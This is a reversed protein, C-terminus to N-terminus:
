GQADRCEIICNLGNEHYHLEIDANLERALLKQILFTGFGEREPAQVRPGGKEQWHLRSLGNGSAEVTIVVQGEGDKLAGHRAANAALEHLALGFSLATSPKLLIDDGNYTFRGDGDEVYPAIEAYALGRLSQGSWDQHTLADHTRSIAALRDTLSRAMEDKTTATRAAFRAIAQVTALSNKVRHELEALLIDKREEARVRETVDIASSVIETVRGNEDSIPVLQFDMTIMHGEDMRTPVDYRLTEGRAARAVANQLVERSEESFAWWWCDWFKKGIVDDRTLGGQELATANADTLTGDPNLMTVFANLSDLLRQLRRRHAAQRQKARSQATVDVSFSIVGEVKGQMDYWPELINHLITPDAGNDDIPSVIAEIEPAENAEGTRRAEAIRDLFDSGVLEPFAEEVPKGLIDRDSIQAQNAPNSYTTVLDPGEHMSILVPAKDFIRRLRHESEAVQRELEREKTVERVCSGVAFVTDGDMLPYFDVIWERIRGPVAPTENRVTIGRAPEATEFVKMQIDVIEAHVAPVVDEQKRGIHDDVSMGNIAALEGNIRLYRLDRDVLNLGVPASDYLQELEVYQERLVRANEELQRENRKRLTVNVFTIVVGDLRNDITRYPRMRAMFTEDTARIWVEREVPQLTRRTEAADEQMEPYEVKQALDHISRGIDRDQVGFLRSVEPTYLRVCDNEDIFLTAIDTSELFNNLDSNARTLQRNNESLEANITELEENISQLEERSTELEENSSQLEENMSLLEENASRLEQATSEYDRELASLRKRTLLLEQEHNSVPRVEVANEDDAGLQRVPELTLLMLDNDGGFPTVSLDFLESGGDRDVVIDRMEADLGSERAETLASHAPLRLERSLYDDLATSTAGKPPRVLRTMAESVYVIEDHRNIAAFPAARSQLFLQETQNEISESPRVPAQPPAPSTVVSKTGYRQAPPPAIASFGPRTQDDRRFLKAGRDLVRFYRESRGITESPGLWLYGGPNLGYHFRPLVTEQSDANLYIMVNRCTVLDLKSFPPDQLLNHPAFVCMDRPHPNVQWHSDEHTMFKERREQSVGEVSAESYRGRRAQRLADIDIDTGFIKWPRTDDTEAKLEEIMFAISFAEEGTSCGPVWIRFSPQDRDLLPRLVKDRLVEFDHPDRFFHTVGILFDQTLLKREDPREGLVRVYGDVSSQRLLTMRRAIRRVLTGPKYGGFSSGGDDELLDLVEQLRTQIENLLSNRGGNGEIQRRHTVIDLIKGPMDQARLVFDVLGTSAASDPMGPFRATRSEQVLAIGGYTKITRVGTTGDSGTGSLVVAFANRGAAEALSAFFRDIPTRVGEERDHDLLRFRDDEIALFPGPPIVYVHDPEIAGGDEIRSVKVPTHASLLKDMLSPQDPALHQVVVYALGSDNPISQVFDRLAELGGASAGIGVIPPLDSM